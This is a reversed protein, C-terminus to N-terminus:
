SHTSYPITFYFTSGKDPQSEAWVRGAHKHVIRQVNALGIGTGEFETQSHLRQFVGFLKGAYQMDFGVGNDCVFFVWHDPEQTFGVEILAEAKNRTYKVANDLLNMWVQKLLSYDGIVRPLEAVTWSIKRNVTDTKLKEIVEQVAANMDMGAQHVEQRGTRSFQLLDDILTGMQKTSDAVMDLYHRAKDPLTDRFRNNMLDVYGSIHRLPARLDHSVSYSFAELEKNAAELQATREVVRQELMANLRRIEADSQKRVENEKKLDEMINLTAVQSDQLKRNVEQLADERQKRETIDESIGLLYRFTGHSDRLPIKKTHLIRSGHNRTQIFEEPIEVLKGGALVERDKETFFDAQDRPFFDHDNKGLLENRSYGLMKEGARNFQVFRLDAADKVFVMDPINEVIDRIFAESKRLEETGAEIRKELSENMRGIDIFKERLLEAMEKFNVILHDTELSFSTPWVIQQASTLKSPVDRTLRCLHDIPQLIRRSLFEALFQAVVLIAFLMFFKGTYANYLRKQFPAVPQEMILKWETLDGIASEWVYFSKGWLDITSANLPLLPIWQAIGDEAPRTLTGQNLSFPAMNKQDKRSTVIVNGNKDLLSYRVERGSSHIRLITEIQDFNLIGSVYGSYKGNVVVPALMAVMPKAAGVRAMVVESLMPKLRQKLTPIFPRDAFSKGINSQGFEDILPSIATITAERDLLAIRLFNQDSLRTQELHTQIQLPSLTTSMGALHIIHNKRNDVWNELSETVHRSDRILEARIQRDTEALDARAGLILLTVSPFLVFFILLNSLMERFSIRAEISRFTFGTFILRAVLANAIGNIGQKTMLFLSNSVPFDAIFHFCFFGMPIGILLWYLADALALNIKRRGILWGVTATEATMTILAYPHNWALYTYGAIVAAALVGRGFGFFQLALMAFISGFIFDANLISFKFYNGALGAAILAILGPIAYRSREVSNVPKTSTMGYEKRFFRFRHAGANDDSSVINKKGVLRNLCSM